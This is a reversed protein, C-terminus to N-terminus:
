LDCVWNPNGQWTYGCVLLNNSLSKKVKGEVPIKHCAPICFGDNHSCTCKDGLKTFQAQVQAESRCGSSTMSCGSERQCGLQSSGWSKCCADDGMCGGGNCERGTWHCRSSRCGEESSWTRCCAHNYQCHSTKRINLSHSCVLLVAIVILNALKSM